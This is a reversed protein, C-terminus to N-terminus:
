SPDYCRPSVTPTSPSRIATYHLTTAIFVSTTYHRGAVTIFVIADDKAENVEAARPHSREEGRSSRRPGRRETHHLSSPWWAAATASPPALAGLTAKYGLVMGGIAVPMTRHFPTPHMRRHRSTARARRLPFLAMGRAHGGPRSRGASDAEPRVPLQPTPTSFIFLFALLHPGTAAAALPAPLRAPM